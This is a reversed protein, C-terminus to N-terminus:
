LASCSGAYIAELRDVAAEPTLQRKDNKPTMSAQGPSSSLVIMAHRPLPGPGVAAATDRRPRSKMGQKRGDNEEVSSCLTPASRAHSGDAVILPLIITIARLVLASGATTAAAANM